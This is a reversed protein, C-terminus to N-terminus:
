IEIEILESSPAEGIIVGDRLYAMNGIAVNQGYVIQEAGGDFQVRSQGDGIQAIVQVIHTMTQQLGIVNRMQEYKNAM